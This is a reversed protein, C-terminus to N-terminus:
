RYVEEDGDFQPRVPPVGRKARVEDAQSRLIGTPCPRGNHGGFGEANDCIYCNPYTCSDSVAQEYHEPNNCQVPRVAKNKDPCRCQGHVRGYQCREEYHVSM